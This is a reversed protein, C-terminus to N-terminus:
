TKAFNNNFGIRFKWLNNHSWLDNGIKRKTSIFYDQCFLTCGCPLLTHEYSYMTKFATHDYSTLSAVACGRNCLNQIAINEDLSFISLISNWWKTSLMSVMCDGAYISALRSIQVSSINDIERFKGWQFNHFIVVEPTVVLFFEDFRCERKQTHFWVQNANQQEINTIESDIRFIWMLLVPKLVTQAVCKFEKVCKFINWCVGVLESWILM